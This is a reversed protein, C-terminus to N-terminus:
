VHEVKVVYLGRTPSLGLAYLVGTQLDVIRERSTNTYCDCFDIVPAIVSNGTDLSTIRVSGCGKTHRLTWTCFNMAVGSGPAYFSAIGQGSRWCGAIQTPTNVTWPVWYCGANNPPELIAISPQPIAVQQPTPSPSPIFIHHISQSHTAVELEPPSSPGALGLMM